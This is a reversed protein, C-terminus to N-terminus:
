LVIPVNKNKNHMESYRTRYETPTMGYSAKFARCFYNSDPYGVDEGIENIPKATETLEKSAKELRFQKVYAMAGM